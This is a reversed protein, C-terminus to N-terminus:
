CTPAIEHVLEACDVLPLRPTPPAESTWRVTGRGVIMAGAGGRFIYTAYAMITERGGVREGLSLSTHLVSRAVKM